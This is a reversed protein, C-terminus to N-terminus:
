LCEFKEGSDGVELYFAGEWRAFVVWLVFDRFFFGLTYLAFFRAKDRKLARAWTCAGIYGAAPLHINGCVCAPTLAVFDGLAFRMCPLYFIGGEGSQVEAPPTWEACGRKRAHMAKRRPAYNM